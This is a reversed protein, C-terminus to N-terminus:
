ASRRSGDAVPTPNRRQWFPAALWRSESHYAHHHRALYANRIAQLRQAYLRVAPADGTLVDHIAEAARRGSYLATFIGQSSVPDFSMAADGVAVFGPRVFRELRSGSADAGRPRDVKASTGLMERIHRTGDLLANFRQPDSLRAAEPADTHLVLSRRHGPLAATYWWGAPCTELVTRGDSDDRPDDVWSCLAVLADDRRRAIGLQAAVSSRRGTADVVWRTTLLGTGTELRVDQGRRDVGSVRTAAFVTAEQAARDRLSADFRPRDLHWGPGYPDRSGETTQLQPSGWAYADGCCTPHGEVAAELELSRLLPGAAAPLSEGVSPLTRPGGDFLAVRLGLRGARFAAVSGAPGAGVIAIDVDTM